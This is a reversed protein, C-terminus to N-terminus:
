LGAAALHINGDEDRIEVVRFNESSSDVMVEDSSFKSMLPIEIEGLTPHNYKVMSGAPDDSGSGPNGGRDTPYRLINLGNEM